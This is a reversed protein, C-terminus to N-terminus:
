TKTKLMKTMMRDSILSTLRNRRGVGERDEWLDEAGNIYKKHHKQLGNRQKNSMDLNKEKNRDLRLSTKSKGTISREDPQTVLAACLFSLSPAM